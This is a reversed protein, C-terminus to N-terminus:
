MFCSLSHYYDQITITLVNKKRISNFTQFKEREKREEKREKKSKKKKKCSRMHELRPEVKGHLWRGTKPTELIIM